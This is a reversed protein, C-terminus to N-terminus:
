GRTPPAPEQGSNTRPQMEYVTDGRKVKRREMMYGNCSAGKRLKGVFVHTVGCHRAIEAPFESLGAVRAALVRHFGDALIYRQGDSFLVAPPFRLGGERVQQKMAQAYDRVVASRVAVRVQSSEDIPM